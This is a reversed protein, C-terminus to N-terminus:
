EQMVSRGLSFLFSHSVNLHHTECVNMSMRGCLCQCMKPLESFIGNDRASKKKQIKSLQRLKFSKKHSPDDGGCGLCQKCQEQIKAIEEAIADQGFQSTLIQKKRSFMQM